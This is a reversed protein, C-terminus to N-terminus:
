GRVRRAGSRRPRGVAFRPRASSLPEDDIVHNVPLVMPRGRHIFAVRGVPQQEALRWCNNVELETMWVVDSSAGEHTVSESM